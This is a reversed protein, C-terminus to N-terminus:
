WPVVNGLATDVMARGTLFAALALALALAAPVVARRRRVFTRTAFAAGAATCGAPVLMSLRYGTAVAEPDALRCSPHVQYTEGCPYAAQLLTLLWHAVGLGTVTACAVVLAAGLVLETGSRHLV